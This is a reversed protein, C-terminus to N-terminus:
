AWGVRVLSVVVVLVLGQKFWFEEYVSGSCLYWVGRFSSQHVENVIVRSRSVGSSVFCDSLSRLNERPFPHPLPDCVVDFAARGALLIFDHSVFLFYGDVANCGFFAGEGELLDCHVEDRPERLLM